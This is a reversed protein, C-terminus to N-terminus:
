KFNPILRVRDVDDFAIRHETEEIIVIVDEQEFGNLIGIFNRMGNIPRKLKFKAQEGIFRQFDKPLFLLRDLGPSSVELQYESAIPDAIDLVGSVQQSVQACDDLTIGNPHDIYLRLLSKKNYRLYEIGSLDYGMATVVPELLERLGLPNNHM